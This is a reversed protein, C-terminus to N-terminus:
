WFQYFYKVDPDNVSMHYIYRDAELKIQQTGVYFIKNNFEGLIYYCDPEVLSFLNSEEDSSIIIYKNQRNNWVLIEKCENLCKSIFFLISVVQYGEGIIKIRKGKVLPKIRELNEKLLPFVLNLNENLLDRDGKFYLVEGILQINFMKEETNM